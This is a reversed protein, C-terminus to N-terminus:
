NVLCNEIAFFYKEFHHYLSLINQIFNITESASFRFMFDKIHKVSFWLYENTISDLIQINDCM